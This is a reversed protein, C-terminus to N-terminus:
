NVLTEIDRDVGLYTLYTVIMDPDHKQNILLSQFRHLNIHRLKIRLACYRGCTNVDAHFKQLQVNNFITKYKYKERAEKLLGKIHPIVQGNMHRLTEKSLSLEFDPEKGYSDFYEIHTDYKMLAVFHGYNNTTRYLVILNDSDSFLVNIDDIDILDQYLMVKVDYPDCLKKLDDFNLSINEANKIINDFGM